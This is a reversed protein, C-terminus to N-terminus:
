WGFFRRLVCSGFILLITAQTESEPPLKYCSCFTSDTTCNSACGTVVVCQDFRIYESCKTSTTDEPMTQFGAICLVVGIGFLILAVLLIAFNPQAM